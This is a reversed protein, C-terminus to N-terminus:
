EAKSRKIYGTEMVLRSGLESTLQSLQGYRTHLAWHFGDTYGTNEARMKDNQVSSGTCLKVPRDSRLGVCCNVKQQVRLQYSAM